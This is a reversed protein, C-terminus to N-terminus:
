VIVYDDGLTLGTAGHVSVEATYATGQLFRFTTINNVLDESTIVWSRNADHDELVLQDGGAGAVKQFNYVTDFGSFNTGDNGTFRFVDQGGAGYLNDAGAGGDIVTNETNQAIITDTGDGGYATGGHVLYMTDDGADGFATGGAILGIGDDGDGGHATGGNFLQINDASGRGDVDAPGHINFVDSLYSGVFKEISSFTDGTTAWAASNVDDITINVGVTTGAALDLVGFIFKTSLSFGIIDAYSVTDIGDGGNFSNTGDDSAFTDDGIGGDFFNAGGNGRMIDNGAGGDLVTAVRGFAIMTDDGDGGYAIASGFSGFILFTDGGAGGYATGLLAESATLKGLFLVDNGTGGILTGGLAVIQDDGAGGDISGSGNISIKDSYKSGIVKEISSFTDGAASWKAPQPAGGFPDNGITVNIGVKTGAKLTGSIGFPEDAKLVFPGAKSYDVTDTGGYLKDHGAGGFLKDNGDGGYLKDNGTGGYLDDNGALGFISDAANTGFLIDRFKTGNIKAM